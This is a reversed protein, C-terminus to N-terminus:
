LWENQRARASRGNGRGRVRRDRARIEDVSARVDVRDAWATGDRDVEVHVRVLDGPELADLTYETRRYLVRTSRDVHVTRTGLRASRVTMRGRRPDVSRIEGE